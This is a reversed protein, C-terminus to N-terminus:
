VVDFERKLGKDNTYRVMGFISREGWPRDHNGFWWAVMFGNPDRGDLEYKNNLYIATPKQGRRSNLRLPISIWRLPLSSQSDRIEGLSQETEGLGKLM